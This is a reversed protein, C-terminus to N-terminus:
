LLVPNIISHNKVVEAVKHSLDPDQLVSLHRENHLDTGIFDILQNKLLYQAQEFIPKGYYGKLSLMNLQLMCGADKLEHLINRKPIFYPYREPHALVPLYGKMQIAFIKEKLDLPPSVFSFEVLLMNDKLTLLPEERELLMDFHEDLFYEAAAEIEIDIQQRKLEGRLEQCKQQIISPDNKYLDWLIHPTTIIKKYGLAAFQRIYNVSTEMDPSGDDIGPILHSHMDVALEAYSAPGSPQTQKKKFIGFM